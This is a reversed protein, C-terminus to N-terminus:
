VQARVPLGNFGGLLDAETLGQGEAGPQRAAAAGRIGTRRVVAKRERASRGRGPSGAGVCFAPWQHPAM